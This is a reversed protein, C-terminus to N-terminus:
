RGLASLLLKKLERASARYRAAESMAPV